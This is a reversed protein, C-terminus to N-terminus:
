ARGGLSALEAYVRALALSVGFRQALRTEALTSPLLAPVAPPASDLFLDLQSEAFRLRKRGYACKPYAKM